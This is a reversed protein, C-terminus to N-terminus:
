HTTPHEPAVVDVLMTQVDVVVDYWYQQPFYQHLSQSYLMLIASM